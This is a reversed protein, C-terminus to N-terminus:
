WKRASKPTRKLTTGRVKERRFLQECINLVVPEMEHWTWDNVPDCTWKGDKKGELAVAVKDMFKKFKKYQLCHAYYLVSPQNAEQWGHNIALTMDNYRYFIVTVTSLEEQSLMKYDLNQASVIAHDRAYVSECIINPLDRM